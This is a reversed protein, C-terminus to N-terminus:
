PLYIGQTSFIEDDANGRVRDPGADLQQVEGIEVVAQKAAIVSGPVLANATTNAGCNSGAVTAEPNSICDVPIPFQLDVLTAARNSTTASAPCANADGGPATPACNYHDSVRIAHGLFKSKDAICAALQTPPVGSCALTPNITTGAAQALTATATIDTGAICTTASLGGPACFPQPPLSTKNCNGVGACITTYPGSPGNPNYDSGATCGLPTGTLRCQVDRGAGSVRVDPRMASTFGPASENCVTDAGLKACDYVYAWGLSNPGSKVTSSVPVPPNCSQFNLPAGHTSDASSPDCAEFAPVLSIRMPNAGLPKEHSAIASNAVFALALLSSLVSLVFLRKKM